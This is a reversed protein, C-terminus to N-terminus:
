DKKVKTLTNLVNGALILFMGLLAISGYREDLFIHSLGLLFVAELYKLPMVKSAQEIQMAMTM